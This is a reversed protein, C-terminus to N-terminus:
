YKEVNNWDIYYHGSYDDYKLKFGLLGLRNEIEKKIFSDTYFKKESIDLMYKGNKAMNEAEEMIKEFIIDTEKVAREQNVKNALDYLEKRTMFINEM